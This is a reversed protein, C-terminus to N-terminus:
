GKKFYPIYPEAGDTTPNRVVIEDEKVDVDEEVYVDEQKPLGKGLRKSLLKILPNLFEKDLVQLDSIFEPTIGNLHITDLAKMAGKVQNPNELPNYKLFNKVFIIDTDFNYNILRQKLLEQLGKKFRQNDWNLDYSGYPIPLPYIGVMNRHKCSLVYLFLLKGDNTLDIFKSDSWVKADIKTFM